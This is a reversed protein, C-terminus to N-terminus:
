NIDSQNNRTGVEYVICNFTISMIDFIDATFCYNDTRPVYSAFTM